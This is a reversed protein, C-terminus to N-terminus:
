FPTKLYRLYGGHKRLSHKGLRDLADFHIRSLV